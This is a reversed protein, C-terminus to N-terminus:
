DRPGRWFQEREYRCSDCLEEHGQWADRPHQVVLLEQGCACTAQTLQPPAPLPLVITLNPMDM